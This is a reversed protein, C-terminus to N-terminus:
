QITEVLYKIRNHGNSPSIITGRPGSQSPSQRKKDHRTNGLTEAEHGRQIGTNTTAKNSSEEGM